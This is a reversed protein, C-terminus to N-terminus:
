PRGNLTERDRYRERATNTACLACVARAAARERLQQRQPSAVCPALVCGARVQIHNATHWDGHAVAACLQLLKPLAGASVEGANLRWFLQGLKKTNDEMERKKVPNTALPVCADYLQTIHDIHCLLTTLSM